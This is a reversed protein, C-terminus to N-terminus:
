DDKERFKDHCAKCAQGLAQWQARIAKVDNGAAVQVLKAAHEDFAAQRAKFAEPQKWIEPKAATEIDSEPGTGPPFWFKQQKSLEEIQRAYQRISALAPQSRKLEDGVGKFAAGIDRLASQRGEIVPQPDFDEQASAIHACAAIATLLVLQTSKM